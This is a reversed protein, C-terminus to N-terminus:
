APDERVRRDCHREAARHNQRLRDGPAAVIVREDEVRAAGICGEPHHVRVAAVFHRVSLAPLHHHIVDAFPHEQRVIQFAVAGDPHRSEGALHAIRDALHPGDGGEFTLRDDFADVSITESPVSRIAMSASPGSPAYRVRLRSGTMVVSPTATASSLMAGGSYTERAM